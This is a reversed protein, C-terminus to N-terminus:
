GVIMMLYFVERTEARMTSLLLFNFTGLYGLVIGLWIIVTMIMLAVSM